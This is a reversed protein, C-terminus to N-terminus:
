LVNGVIVLGDEVFVLKLLVLGEFIIDLCNCDDCDVVGDFM